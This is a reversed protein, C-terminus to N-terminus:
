DLPKESRALADTASPRIFKNIGVQLLAACTPNQLANIIVSNKSDLNQALVYRSWM